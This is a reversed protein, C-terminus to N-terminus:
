DIVKSVEVEKDLLLLKSQAQSKKEIETKLIYYLTILLKSLLDDVSLVMMKLITNRIKVSVM